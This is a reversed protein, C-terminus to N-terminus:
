PSRAAVIALRFVERPSVLITDLTGTSVLHHGKIRRRTNLILVIFCECEPDFYPHTVVHTDWYEAAREPTDYIQMEAPTPCERLPVLKWEKPHNFAAKM